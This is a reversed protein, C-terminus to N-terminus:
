MFQNIVNRHQSYIFADIDNDNLEEADDEEYEGIFYDSDSTIFDSGLDEYDSFPLDVVYSAQKTKKRLSQGEPSKSQLHKKVPPSIGSSQSLNSRKGIPDVPSSSSEAQPNAISIKPLDLRLTADQLHSGLDPLNSSAPQCNGTLTNIPGYVKHIISFQNAPDPVIPGTPQHNTVPSSIRIMFEPILVDSPLDLVERNVSAERYPDLYFRFLKEYRREYALVNKLQDDDMINRSSDSLSHSTPTIHLDNLKKNVAAYLATCSLSTLEANSGDPDCIEQLSLSVARGSPRITVVFGYVNESIDKSSAADLYDNSIPFVIGEAM